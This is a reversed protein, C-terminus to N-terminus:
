EPSVQGLSEGHEVSQRNLFIFFPLGKGVHIRRKLGAM